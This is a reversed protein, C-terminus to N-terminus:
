PTIEIQPDSGGIAFSNTAQCYIAYIYSTSQNGAAAPSPPTTGANSASRTIMGNFPGNGRGTNLPVFVTIDGGTDNTWTLTDGRQLSAKPVTPVGNVLSVTVNKQPM